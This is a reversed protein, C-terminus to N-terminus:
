CCRPPAARIRLVMRGYGPLSVVSGRHVRGSLLDRAGELAMNRLTLRVAHSRANVLVVVNGRRYAIVDRPASTPVAALDGDRVAPDDRARALV